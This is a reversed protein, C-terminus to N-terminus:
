NTDLRKMMHAIARDSLQEIREVTYGRRGYWDVLHQLAVGTYLRMVGLGLQRARMEAAALMSKGLGKAQRGPDTAISWILLDGERPELILAGALGGEGAEALWVEYDKFIQRYDAMLPLPERGLLVRNRAYALRQLAVVADLDGAGARRLVLGATELRAGQRM